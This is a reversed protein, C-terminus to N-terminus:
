AEDDATALTTLTEAARLVDHGAGELDSKLEEAVEAREKTEEDEFLEAASRATDVDDGAEDALDEVMSALEHVKEALLRIEERREKEM